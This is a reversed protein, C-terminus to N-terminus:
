LVDYDLAHQIADLQAWIIRDTLELENPYTTNPHTLAAYANVDAVHLEDESYALIANKITCEYAYRRFIDDSLQINKAKTWDSKTPTEGKLVSEFLSIVNNIAHETHTLQERCERLTASLVGAIAMRERRGTLEGFRTAMAGVRKVVDPWQKNSGNDNWMPILAALWRPAIEAPCKEPRGNPDNVLATYLCLLERGNIDVSSWNRRILRGENFVTLINNMIKRHLM